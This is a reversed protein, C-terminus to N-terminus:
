EPVSLTTEAPGSFPWKGTKPETVRKFSSVHVLHWIGTAVFYLGKIAVLPRM